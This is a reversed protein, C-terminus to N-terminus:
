LDLLTISKSLWYIHKLNAKEWGGIKEPRGKRFRVFNGDVWGNENSYDTEEKNIGPKFNFVTLPM